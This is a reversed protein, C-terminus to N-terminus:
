MTYSDLTPQLSFTVKERDNDSARQWAEMALAKKEAFASPKWIEALAACLESVIAQYFRRPIDANQGMGPNLVQPDKMRYGVFGLYPGSGPQMVPGVPWTRVEPVITRNFWYSTPNGPSDKLPLMSYNNRSIPWLFIDTPLQGTAQQTVSLQGGNEFVAANSAASAGAAFTFEYSAQGYPNAVVSAVTYPGSLTM